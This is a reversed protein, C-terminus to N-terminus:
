NKKSSQDHMSAISSTESLPETASIEKLWECINRNKQQRSIESKQPCKESPVEPSITLSFKSIEEEM